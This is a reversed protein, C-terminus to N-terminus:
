LAPRGHGPPAPSVPPAATGVGRGPTPEGSIAAIVRLRPRSARAPSMARAAIASPMTTTPSAGSASRRGAPPAATGTSPTAIPQPKTPTPKYAHSRRGSFM